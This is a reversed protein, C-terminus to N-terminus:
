SCCVGVFQMQVKREAPQLVATTQAIASRGMSDSMTICLPEGVQGTVKIEV